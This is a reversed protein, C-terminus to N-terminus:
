ARAASKIALLAKMVHSLDAAKNIGGFSDHLQRYLAYLQNYIKQNAAKPKYAVGPKLRTM